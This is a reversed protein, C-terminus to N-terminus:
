NGLLYRIDMSTLNACAGMDGNHELNPESLIQAQLKRKERQVKLVREEFTKIQEDEPLVSILKKVIVKKSQGIRHARGIAQDEIAPNWHPSTFYVRNLGQLNLGVSGSNIQILLVDIPQIHHYIKMQLDTALKPLNTKRGSSIQQILSKYDVGSCQNLISKKKKLKVKGDYRLVNLNNMQCQKELIDMELHYHCFVIAGESPHEKIMNMLCNFKSTDFIWDDVDIEQNKRYSNILLQPHISVQRLKVMWALMELHNNLLNSFLGFQNLTMADQHKYVELQQGDLVVPVIETTIPELLDQNVLIEKTRRKCYISFMQKVTELTIKKNPYDKKQLGIISLLNSADALRNHIPTGTLLWRIDSKIRAIGKFIGTSRNKAVHAEDIVMRGWQPFDELRKRSKDNSMSNISALVINYNELNMTDRAKGHYQGVLFTGDKLSTLYNKAFRKIESFWQPLLNPPVLILTPGDVPNGMITSITQITKGLGMDDSLLGGKPSDQQLERNLMWQIGEEQHPKFTLVGELNHKCRRYATSVALNLTDQIHDM